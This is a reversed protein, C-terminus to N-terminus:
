DNSKFKYHPVPRILMGTKIVFNKIEVLNLEIMVKLKKGVQRECLNWHKQIERRTYFGKSPKQLTQTHVLQEIKKLNPINM